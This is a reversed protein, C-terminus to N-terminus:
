KKKARGISYKSFSLKEWQGRYFWNEKEKRMGM